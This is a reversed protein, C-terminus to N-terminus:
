RQKADDRSERLWRAATKAASAAPVAVREIRKGRTRAIVNNSWREVEDTHDEFWKYGAYVFAAAKPANRRIKSYKM